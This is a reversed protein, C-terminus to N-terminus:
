SNQELGRNKVMFILFYPFDSFSTVLGGLRSSSVFSSTIGVSTAVIGDVCFDPAQLVNREVNIM